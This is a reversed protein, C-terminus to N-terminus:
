VSKLNPVTTEGTENEAEYEDIANELDELELDLSVLAETKEPDTLAFDNEIQERRHEYDKDLADLKEKAEELEQANTIKEM